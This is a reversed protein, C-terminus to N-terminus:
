KSSYNAISKMCTRSAQHVLILGVSDTLLLASYHAETLREPPHWEWVGEAAARKQLFPYFLVPKPPSSFEDRRTAHCPWPHIWCAYVFGDTNASAKRSLRFWGGNWPARCPMIFSKQMAHIVGLCPQHALTGEGRWV